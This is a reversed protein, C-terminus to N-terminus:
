SMNKNQFSNWFYMHSNLLIQLLIINVLNRLNVDLCSSFYFYVLLIWIKQTKTLYILQLYKSRSDSYVYVDNLVIIEFFKTNWSFFFCRLLNTRTKKNSWITKILIFNRQDEGWLQLVVVVFFDNKSSGEKELYGDTKMSGFIFCCNLIHISNGKFHKLCIM